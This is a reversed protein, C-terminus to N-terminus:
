KAKKGIGNVQVSVNRSMDTQNIAYKILTVPVSSNDTFTGVFTLNYKGSTSESVSVSLNSFSANKPPGVRLDLPLFLTHSPSSQPLTFPFSSSHFALSPTLSSSLPFPFLSYSVLVSLHLTFTCTYMYPVYVCM